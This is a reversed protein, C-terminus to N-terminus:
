IYDNVPLSQVIAKYTLALDESLYNMFENENMTLYKKFNDSVIPQSNQDINSHSLPNADPFKQNQNLFNQDINLSNTSDEQNSHIFCLPSKQKYSKKVNKAMQRYYDKVVEPENEWSNRAFKSVDKSSINLKAVVHNYEKRYIIFANVTKNVNKIRNKLHIQVIEDVSISPPFPIKLIKTTNQYNINISM